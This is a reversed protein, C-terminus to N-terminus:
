VCAGRYLLWGFGGGSLIDSILDDLEEQIEDKTKTAYSYSESTGGQSQSEGSIQKGSNSERFLIVDFVCDKLAQPIEQLAAIRKGTQGGSQANILYEARREAASFAAYDLSGGMQMYEEYTLYM